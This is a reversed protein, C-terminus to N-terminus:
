RACCVLVQRGDTLRALTGPFHSAFRQEVESLALPRLPKGQWQSPWKWTPSPVPRRTTTRRTGGRDPRHGCRVCRCCRPGCTKHLVRNVFRNALLSM